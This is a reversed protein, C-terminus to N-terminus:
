VVKDGSPEVKEELEHAASMQESVRHPNETRGIMYDISVNFFNAITTITNYSPERRNNEYHSLSARTIGLKLSLEEQTMSYKERLLAIREGYKM